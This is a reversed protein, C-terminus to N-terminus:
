ADPECRGSPSGEFPHQLGPPGPEVPQELAPVGIVQGPESGEESTEGRRQLSVHLVGTAGSLATAEACAGASWSKSFASCRRIRTIREASISPMNRADSSWVITDVASGVMAPSRCPNFWREHTTVAYRRAEVM